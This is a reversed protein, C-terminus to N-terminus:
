RKFDIVLRTPNSLALVRFPTRKSLGILYEIEGEFFSSTKVERIVPWTMKNQRRELRENAKRDKDAYGVMYISVHIFAKGRLKVYQEGYTEFPPKEYTVYWKPLTGNMEFVVRDFGKQKGVRMRLFDGGGFNERLVRERTWVNLQGESYGQSKSQANSQALAPSLGLMLLLFGISLIRIVLKMM